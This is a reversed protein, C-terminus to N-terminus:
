KKYAVWDKVNLCMTMPYFKFGEVNKSVAYITPMTMFPYSFRMNYIYDATEDLLATRKPDGSYLGRLDLLKQDLVKDNGNLRSGFSSEYIIWTNSIDKANGSRISAQFQGQHQADYTALASVVVNAKIGIAAWMSQVSEALKRMTADSEVFLDITFGNPYGAQALLQKAKSVDYPIEPEAKMGEKALPPGMTTIPTGIGDTCSNILAKKDIANMMAYRVDKNQFLPEKMSLAILYYLYSDGKVVQFNNTKNIRDTSSGPIGYIVDASGTEAEIVRSEPEQIFKLTVNNMKPTGGWYNANAALKISTGQTWEQIKYPGTGVPARAGADAGIKEFAKQSIIKGRLSAMTDMWPAWKKTFKIVLNLDDTAKSNVEDFFVFQSASIPDKKDRTFNWIVDQATLPTGDSFKVGAKLKIELTTDDVMKYSEALVNSYTSDPNLQFLGDSIFQLVNGIPELNAKSPDLTGPEAPLVVVLTDKAQRSQTGSSTQENNGSCGSLAIGCITILALVLALQKKLLISM